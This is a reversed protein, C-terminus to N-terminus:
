VAAQLGISNTAANVFTKGSRTKLPLADTVERVHEMATEIDKVRGNILDHPDRQHRIAETMSQILIDKVLERQFGCKELLLAMTPLLPIDVTPTYQEDQLKNVGGKVHVVATENVPHYGPPPVYGAADLDKQWQKILALKALNTM